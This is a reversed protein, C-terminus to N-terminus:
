ETGETKKQREVADLMTQFFAADDKTFVGRNDAYLQGLDVRLSGQVYERDKPLSTDPDLAYGVASKLDGYPTDIYGKMELKVPIRRNEM